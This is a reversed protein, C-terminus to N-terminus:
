ARAPRLLRPVLMLLPPLTFAVAALGTAPLGGMVMVPGTVVAALMNVAGAITENVGIARGREHTEFADAIEATAGVNGGAWGLGVLFTGATVLWYGSTFAVLAAGILAVIVGPIMVWNNGMRDALRGLPITFAFMGITHFM